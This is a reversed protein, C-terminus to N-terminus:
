RTVPLSLKSVLKADIFNHTSGFNVLIIAWSSGVRAAVRMTNYGQLGTLAHLSIVPSKSSEEKSGNEDLKDSCEQFEEAESNSLPDLLVQYLQFRVCKHGAQYKAGCWFCLGKQKREAM